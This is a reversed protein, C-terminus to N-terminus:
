PALGTFLLAAGFVLVGLCLTPYIMEMFASRMFPRPEGKRPMGFRVLAVAAIVLLAGLVVNM